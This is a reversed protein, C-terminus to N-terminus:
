LGTPWLHEFYRPADSAFVTDEQRRALGVASLSAVAAVIDDRALELVACLTDVHDGAAPPDVVLELLVLKQAEYARSDPDPLETPARGNRHSHMPPMGEQAPGPSTDADGPAGRIPEM